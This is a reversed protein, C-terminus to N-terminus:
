YFIKKFSNSNESLCDIVYNEWISDRGIVLKPTATINKELTRLYFISKAKTMQDNPAFVIVVSDGAKLKKALTSQIAFSFEEYQGEVISLSNGNQTIVKGIEVRAVLIVISDTKLVQM